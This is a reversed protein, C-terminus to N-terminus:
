FKTRVTFLLTYQDLYLDDAVQYNYWNGTIGFVTKYGPSYFYGAGVMTTPFSLTNNIQFDLNLDEPANGVSAMAQLYDRQNRVYVRTQAMINHYLNDGETILSGRANLWVDGITKEIGIIGTYLSRNDQLYMYRGGIEAQWTKAFPQYFSLAGRFKPFYRSGVAGNALFYSKNRFTHYWDIEGQVGVGSAKGTYNGRFVYTDRKAYRAYEITGVSLNFPITDASASLYSVSIQNKRLRFDLYEMHDKYEALRHPPPVYKDQYEKAKKFDNMNEYVIGKLYLLDQNDKNYELANDLVIMADNYEKRSVHHNALKLPALTDSPKLLIIEKYINMAQRNEDRKEKEKAHMMMEEVLSNRISSNYPYDKEMEFLAEVAKKHDGTASYLGAQKLRLEKSDPYYQLAKETIQAAEDYQKMMTRASIAYQYAELNDPNSAILEDTIEKIKNYDEKEQLYKMYKFSMDNLMYRYGINDKNNEYYSKAMAYANEYDGMEALLDTKKFIYEQEAPYAKILREIHDMAKGYAKQKLYISYIYNNAAKGYETTGALSEFLPLADNYDEERFLDRADQFIYYEYRERIDTDEGYLDFLKQITARAGQRNQQSEYVYLQKSLLQKSTPNKRLEKTLLEQADGYYGRSVATNLLYNKAEKNSKDKEYLQGYLEYPDSNKYHRAAEETLYLLQKNYYANNGKKQQAKVIDIAKQYEHMEELIGIKKNILETNGPLTILGKDATALAAQYNGSRNYVNILNLYSEADKKNVALVDEYQKASSEVNGKKAQRVANEKLTNTYMAKVTSDEPFIQYLRQLQRDAEVTDGMLQYLSIRKMWLEKDYPKVELLENVYCIASSYRKTQTEINILYYRADTRKPSKKLVELLTVRAANIRKTEMYCRGLLEKVDMNEPEEKLAKECYEAAKGFNNNKAEKRALKFYRVAEDDQGYGSVAFALLFVISYIYGKFM